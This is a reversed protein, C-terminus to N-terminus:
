WSAKKVGPIQGKHALERFNIRSMGFQRMFSRPRGDIVDRNRLRVPSSDKPLQSLALYDGKAKLEARLDAYKAVIARQKALKAVKSKKAM